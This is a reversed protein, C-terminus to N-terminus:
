IHGLAFFVIGIPVLSVASVVASVLFAVACASLAPRQANRSTLRNFIYEGVFVGVFIGIPISIVSGCFGGVLAAGYEDTNPYSRIALIIGLISIVASGFISGLLGLGAIALHEVTSVGKSSISNEMTQM